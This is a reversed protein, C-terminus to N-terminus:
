TQKPFYSRVAKWAALLAARDGKLEPTRLPHDQRDLPSRLGELTERGFDGLSAPPPVHYTSMAWEWLKQLNEEANEKHFTKLLLMPQPIRKDHEAPHVGQLVYQHTPQGESEEDDPCWINPIEHPNDCLSYNWRDPLPANELPEEEGEDESNVSDENDSEGETPADRLPDIMLSGQWSPRSEPFRWISLEYIKTSALERRRTFSIRYSPWDAM